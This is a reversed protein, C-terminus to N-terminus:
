PVSNSNEILARKMLCLDFVNLKDDECLDAAKWYSLKTNPENLLWKQLTVIDAISFEGDFNVDGKTYELPVFNLGWENTYRETETGYYGYIVCNIDFACIPEDTLPRRPPPPEIGSTFEKPTKYPYGGIVEVTIPITLSTINEQFAGQEIVRVSNPVYLEPLSNCGKFAQYSIREIGDELIINELNECAALSREGIEKVKLQVSKLETCGYLAETALTLDPCDLRLETLSDCGYFALRGIYRLKEPFNIKELYKCHVFATRDIIELSDPLVIETFPAQALADHEIATVPCGNIESEIVFPETIKETYQGSSCDSWAFVATGDSKTYYYGGNKEIFGFKEMYKANGRFDRMPCDYKTPIIEVLKDNGDYVEFFSQADSSTKERFIVYSNREDDLWYEMSYDVFYDRLNDDYNLNIVDPVCSIYTQWGYFPKYNSFNDWLGYANELQELTIRKGVDDGALIRRARECVINDNAAQETDFVFHCLQQENASLADYNSICLDYRIFDEWLSQDSASDAQVNPTYATVLAASLILSVIKKM